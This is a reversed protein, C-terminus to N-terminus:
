KNTPFGKPSWSRLGSGHGCSLRSLLRVSTVDIREWQIKRVGQDAVFKIVNAWRSTKCRWICRRCCPSFHCWFSKVVRRRREGGIILLTIFAAFLFLFSFKGGFMRDSAECQRKRRRWQTGFILLSFNYFFLRQNEHHFLQSRSNHVLTPSILTRM